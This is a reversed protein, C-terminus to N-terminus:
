PLERVWQKFSEGRHEFDRFEDFSTGGPSLLVVDGPQAIRAAADVASKLSECRTLTCGGNGSQIMAKHILDSAEGFLFLHDVRQWVLTAFGEWSLNKDRGGALLILPEDFSRIAAIAREPATAISDNFWDVDRWRRVFELRHPIGKFGKIGAEIAQIPLGAAVSIGCAAMVNLLNHNGRLSVERRKMVFHDESSVKSQVSRLVPKIENQPVRLYISEEALYAGFQNAALDSLGFTYLQGVVKDILSMAGTDDRGLVAISDQSQHSLIKAKAATYVEMTGHRDLHNPSVNLVAAVQPSRDMIELQFSSLEMIALDDKKMEDLVSILPFGINGGIWSKLYPCDGNHQSIAAQAICGVISTTTTKGASGTIGVVKCPAAELFIQADNSLPIGRNQAEVVLSINLPVGGSLCVLNADDLLFLPHEGCVWKFTYGAGTLDELADQAFALEDLTRKDTITVKANHLLLYRALALGQRAAGVIVVNQGSWDKM